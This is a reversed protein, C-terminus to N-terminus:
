TKFTRGRPLLKELKRQYERLIRNRSDQPHFRLIGEEITETSKRRAMYLSQFYKLIKEITYTHHETNNRKVPANPLHINPLYNIIWKNAYIFQEYISNKSYLPMMRAVEHATFIDHKTKPIALHNSDVFMNLCLKNNVDKDGPRRRLFFIDLLCTALFRTTWLWGPATVIYLDIDDKEPANEWALAGSIGILQITPIYQLIKIRKKALDLKEKSFQRREKRLQVIKERGKLFYYGDKSSFFKSKQGDRTLNGKSKEILWVHIEDWTLPYDFIDAYVLTKIIAEESHTM